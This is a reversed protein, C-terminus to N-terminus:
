AKRESRPRLPEQRPNEDPPGFAPHRDLFDDLSDLRGFPGLVMRTPFLREAASLVEKMLPKAAHARYFMGYSAFPAGLYPVCSVEMDATVKWSDALTVGLGAQVMTLASACDSAFLVSNSEPRSALLDNHIDQHRLSGRSSQTVSFRDRDELSIVTEEALDTKSLAEKRSLPHNLPLVCCLYTMCLEQYSLDLDAPVEKSKGLMADAKGSAVDAFARQSHRIRGVRVRASPAEERLGRLLPALIRNDLNGHSYIVLQERSGAGSSVQTLVDEIGVLLPRINDYLFRGSETIEIGHETRNFLNVRLERELSSAQQSVASQTLYLREAAKTFSGAEVVSLFCRLKKLM